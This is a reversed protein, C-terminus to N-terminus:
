KKKSEVMSQNLEDIQSKMAEIGASKKSNGNTSNVNADLVNVSELGGIGTVKFLKAM